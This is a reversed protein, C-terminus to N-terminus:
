TREKETKLYEEYKKNGNNGDSRIQKIECKDLFAEEEKTGTKGYIAVLNNYV